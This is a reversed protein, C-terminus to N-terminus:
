PQPEDAYPDENDILRPYRITENRSPNIPKGAPDVLRASVFILLNRKDSRQGKSRFLRGLLPVDGLLPIRDDFTVLDERILGGMVVSHGDWVVMSTTINRSAFIPQPINFVFTSGDPLGVTSGYQIWEVLEAIEPILALNITYNDPAVTPTVNLIVGTERTEFAGPTVAPPTIPGNLVGNQIQGGGGGGGFQSQEIEFETPYIIERVVEIQANVGSLTTIRPASLLDMSGKQNILHLVTQLEPNTLVSSFSLINGTDQAENAKTIVTGPAIAGSQRDFTFFRLAKSFGQDNADIQLRERSGIPGVGDRVAFEYNDTLKWEVGTENLEDQLVEVFRTEIEVQVPPTNIEDLIRQFIRHNDPSNVVVIKGLRPQYTASTGPQPFPVGLNTFFPAVDDGLAGGGGGGGPAPAGFPDPQAFPDPAGGGFPDGGGFGGGGAAPGITEAFVNPDVPYFRTVTEDIADKPRLVVTGRKVIYKLETIDCIFDLADKLSVRRLNITVPKVGSGSGGGGGPAGFGQDGGGFGPGGGGPAGFGFDDVGGGAPEGAPAGFFDDNGGGQLGDRFFFENPPPAPPTTTTTGGGGAGQNLDLIINVGLGEGTEPDERKDRARSTEILFNIVDYIDADKFSLEPILIREM